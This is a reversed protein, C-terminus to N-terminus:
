AHAELDFAWGDAQHSAAASGAWRFLRRRVFSKELFGWDIARALKALAHNMDVIQELRAKFPDNQGSDRRERPRMALRLSGRLLRRDIQL